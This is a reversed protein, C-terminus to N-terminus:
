VLLISIFAGSLIGLSRYLKGKKDREERAKEIILGLNGMHISIMGLQGEIDSKGLSFGIGKIFDVDTEKLFPYRCKEIGRSWAEYFDEYPLYNKKIESLFDLAALTKDRRLVDLIESLTSAQFRIQISIEELMLKLLSLFEVRETLRKSFIIGTLGTTTIILLM